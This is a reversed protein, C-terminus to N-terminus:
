CTIITYFHRQTQIIAVSGTIKLQEFKSQGYSQSIVLIHNFNPSKIQQPKSTIFKQIPTALFKVYSL